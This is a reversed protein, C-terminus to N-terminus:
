PTWTTRRVLPKPSHIQAPVTVGYPNWVSLWADVAMIGTRNGPFAGIGLEMTVGSRAITTVTTPLACSRGMCAYAFEKALLGAMFSGLGDVVAGPIYTIAFSGIDATTLSMDQCVPWSEGDIRVLRNGNDVRYASEAIVLGDITISNIRGVGDPLVIESLTSCSCLDYCGCGNVWSGTENIYPAMWTGYMGVSDWCRRACPRVTVPCAGLMNGSLRRLASTALAEARVMVDPDMEAREEESLCSWDVPWCNSTVAPVSM